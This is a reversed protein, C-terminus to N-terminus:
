CFRLDLYHCCYLFEWFATAPKATLAQLVKM